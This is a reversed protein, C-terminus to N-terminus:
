QDFLKDFADANKDKRKQRPLREAPGEDDAATSTGSGLVFDPNIVQHMKFSQVNMDILLGLKLKAAKVCAAVQAKLLGPHGGEAAIRVYVKDRVVFNLAYEGVTAGKYTIPITKGQEYPINRRTLEQAFARKYPDEDFGPGLSAHVEELAKRVEFAIDEHNMDTM